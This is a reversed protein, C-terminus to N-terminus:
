QVSRVTLLRDLVYKLSNESTTIVLTETDAFAYALIVMGESNKLVRTDINSVVIDDFSDTNATVPNENPYSVRILALFDNRLDKEWDLMGAFTNQFFTNKLIIFPSNVDYTYVGIMYEPALSRLLKPPIHTSGFVVSVDAPKTSITDLTPVLAYINGLGANSANLKAGILSLPDNDNRLLLTSGKTYPIITEILVQPPIKEIKQSTKFWYFWGGSLAMIVIFVIVVFIGSHSKNLEVYENIYEIPTSERKKQEAVAIDVTSVNKYRVAEEADSKFTRIPRISPDNKVPPTPPPMVTETVAVASIKPEVSDKDTFENDENVGSGVLDIGENHLDADDTKLNLSNKKDYFEM